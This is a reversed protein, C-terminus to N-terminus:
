PLIERMCVEVTGSITSIAVRRLPAAILGASAAFFGDAGIM